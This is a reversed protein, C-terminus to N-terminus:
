VSVPPPNAQREFLGRFAGAQFNLVGSGAYAIALELPKEIPEVPGLGAAGAAGPTGTQTKGNTVTYGQGVIAPDFGSVARQTTETDSQIQGTSCGSWNIFLESWFM